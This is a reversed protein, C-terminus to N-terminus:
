LGVELCHSGSELRGETQLLETGLDDFSVVFGTLKIARKSRRNRKVM